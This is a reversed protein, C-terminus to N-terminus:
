LNKSLGTYTSPKLKKLFIKNKQSIPLNEVVNLYSNKTLNTGRSIDKILEYANDFGELKMITQIAETLVQWNDNLERSSVEKNIILKNLGKLTSNIALYSHSIGVGINRQVTSDSLDRQLRSKTLKNAFFIMMSNSLESNGESNEFDIPNVKHPMTSSGIENKLIKLKFLDKSIYMWIDINLDNVINNIRIISHCLRAICDHPEIQTTITNININLRKSFGITFNVWDKKSNILSLTHFNGTAGGWKGYLKISKLISVEEELRAFFVKFEKGFTTPSAPQGHTRALLPTNKWNKSKSRLDKLLDNLKNLYVSKAHQYILAYSMSNIDESTLGFHIYKEFKILTKHKRFKERILYEVAKIDHNTRKEISKIRKADRDNFDNKIKNLLNIQSKNLKIFFKPLKQCIYILWEIEIQYRTKNLYSENFIEALPQVQKSYRSDLPSISTDKLKM